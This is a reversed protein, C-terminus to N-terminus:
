GGTRDPMREGVLTWEKIKRFKGYVRVPVRMEDNTVWMRLDGKNELKGDRRIVPEVVLTDVEAGGAQLRESGKFVTTIQYVKRGGYVNKPKDERGMDRWRFYYTASVPDHISPVVDVKKRIEGTDRYRYVIKGKEQDYIAVDDRKNKRGTYEIRIPAITEHDLYYEITENIPYLFSLIGSTWARVNVHYATKGGISVKGKYLFRAYGMTIGLFDVRFALSENRRSWAPAQPGEPRAPASASPEAPVPAVPSAPAPTAQTPAIRPKGPSTTEPLARPPPTGKGPKEREEPVPVTTAPPAVAPTEGKAAPAPEEVIPIVPPIERIAARAANDYPETRATEPPPVDARRSGFCGAAALILVASLAAAGLRLLRKRGTRGSM